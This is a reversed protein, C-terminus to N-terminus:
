VVSKRDTAAYYGAAVVVTTPELTQKALAGTIETGDVWAKKGALLDGAAADGSTTDVVETKGTVGFITTGAKINGTVLDADGEVYGAGSHYGQQISQQTTGPTLTVAGCNAMAGTNTGWAGASLGWFAKGSLVEAAVAANANTAPAKGMVQNLTHGTSGPGAGPETFVSQTGAAGTDLSNYIAELTYMASGPDSPAGPPTLDGARAGGTWMLGAVMTVAAMWRSAKM